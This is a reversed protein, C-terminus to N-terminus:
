GNVATFVMRLKQVRIGANFTDVALNQFLISRQFERNFLKVAQMGRVTELFNSQQRAATIIQDQSAERLPRYRVVRLLGYTLTVGCVLLGLRWSYVFMMMATVLAMLGDILIELATTTITRRIAGLSDFRSVLDGLHRRAFFPM